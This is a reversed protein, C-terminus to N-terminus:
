NLGPNLKELIAKPDHAKGGKVVTELRRLDRPDRLPDGDIILFDAYRGPTVSGIDDACRLYCAAVQTVAKIAEMNGIAEALLEIERLLSFGPPPYTIAGCDTGGVILGGAEHLRRTVEQHKELAIVGAYPDFLGTQIDGDAKAKGDANGESQASTSATRIASPIYRRDPDNAVGEPGAKSAWLLDLTTGMNVQREVMAGFWRQALDADLDAGEWGGLTQSWFGPDMM